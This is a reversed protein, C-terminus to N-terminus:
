AHDVRDLFDSVLKVLLDPDELPFAHGADVEAYEADPLRRALERQQRPPVILDHRSSIVLGPMTLRPLLATVDVTANLASQRAVGDLVPELLGTFAAVGDAVTAQDLSHLVAPAHATLQLLGALAGPDTSALRAWLDFQLAM